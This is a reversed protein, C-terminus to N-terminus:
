LRSVIIIWIKNEQRGPLMCWWGIYIPIVNMNNTADGAFGIPVPASKPELEPQSEFLGDPTAGTASSSQSLSEPSLAM